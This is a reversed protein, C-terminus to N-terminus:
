ASGQKDGNSGGCHGLTDFSEGEQRQHQDDNNEPYEHAPSANPQGVQLEIVVEHYESTYTLVAKRNM